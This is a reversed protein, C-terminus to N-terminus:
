HSVQIKGDSSAAFLMGGDMDSVLSTFKAHGKSNMKIAGIRSIREKLWVEIMGLKTATFIFENNVAIRQIDFGTPFTGMVKKSSRYFVKM